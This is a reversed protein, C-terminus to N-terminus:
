TNITSLNDQNMISKILFVIMINIIALTIILTIFTLMGFQQILLGGIFPAAAQAFLPLRALKGILLPYQNQGYIEFPLTGRLVSRMGNGIGFFIVGFIATSNNTFILIIGLLMLFTSIFSMEIATRKGMVLEIVRAAAQSPGLFAIITLVTTMEIKSHVLIDILHIVIATTILSGITFNASILLYLKSNSVRSHVVKINGSAQPKEDEKQSFVFKHIPYVILILFIAYIYCTNRWGFNQLMTNIGIWAISPALSSILTIWIISKKANGAYVKGLSAFLADYLGMAMGIGIIAWGAIFTLFSHSSGIFILGIAMMIGSLLLITTNNGAQIAKGISPLIMGSIFLAFSLCGYVMQYSWKMEEMIEKALISLLFYSGGWLLIQAIGLYLIKASSLENSKIIQNMKEM